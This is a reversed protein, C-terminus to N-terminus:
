NIAGLSCYRYVWITRQRVRREIYSQPSTFLTIILASSNKSKQSATSDGKVSLKEMVKIEGLTDSDVVGPVVEFNKKYRSSHGTIHGVTGPPLTGLVSTSTLHV